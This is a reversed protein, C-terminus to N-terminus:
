TPFVVPTGNAAAEVMMEAMSMPTLMGDNEVTNSKGWQAKDFALRNELNDPLVPASGDSPDGVQYVCLHPQNKFFNEWVQIARARQHPTMKGDPGKLDPLEVKQASFRQGESVMLNTSAGSECAATDIEPEGRLLCPWWRHEEGSAVLKQLTVILLHSDQLHWMCEDLKVKAFLTGDIISPQGRLGATLAQAGFKCVVDRLATGPPLEISVTVDLLEQTWRYGDCVNGNKVVKSAEDADSRTKARAEALRDQTAKLSLAEADNGIELIPQDDQNDEADQQHRRLAERLKRRDALGLGAKKAAAM